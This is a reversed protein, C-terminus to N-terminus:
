PRVGWAAMISGESGSKAFWRATFRTRDIIETFEASAGEVFGPTFTAKKAGLCFQHGHDVRLVDYGMSFIIAEKLYPMLGSARNPFGVLLDENNQLWEYLSTVTSYPFRRRTQGHLSTTLGISILTVPAASHSKSYAKVFEAALSGMFAPNFLYAEEPARASWAMLSPM